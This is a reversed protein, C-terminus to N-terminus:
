DNLIEDYEPEMYKLLLVFEALEENTLTGLRQDVLEKARARALKIQDPQLSM